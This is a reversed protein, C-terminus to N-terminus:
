SSVLTVCWCVSVGPGCCRGDSAQSDEAQAPSPAPAASAPRPPLPTDRWPVVHRLRPASLWAKTCAGGRRPLWCPALLKSHSPQSFCGGRCRGSFPPSPPRGQSGRASLASHKGGRAVAYTCWVGLAGSSKYAAKVSGQPHPNGCKLSLLCLHFSQHIQSCFILGKTQGFFLRIYCDSLFLSSPLPPLGLVPSAPPPLPLISDDAATVWAM